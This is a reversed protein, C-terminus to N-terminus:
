GVGLLGLRGVRRRTKGKRKGTVGKVARLMKRMQGFQKLLRNVDQVAAGSGRAIRSRRSGNIISPRQREDPTVSDIIVSTRTLQRPDVDDVNGLGRKGKLGPIMDLLQDVPGMKQVADMQSRLDELSFAGRRLKEAMREGDDRTVAQEAREVLTLIDGMGLMRSVLREPHFVEFDELQEGSGGFVIPVGVVSVVSLAAGGRADGDMKSLVLGTIQARRNFEGASKIADQGTMADAVYLLDSPAVAGRISELETMLADDLHLRGATDVIVTDFGLEKAAAVATVARHTPDRDGDPDHM